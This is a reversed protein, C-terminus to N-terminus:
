LKDKLYGEVKAVTKSFDEVNVDFWTVDMQNKFWTFQRKAYRRSNRKILSIAEELGQEKRFYPFLEKYGIARMSQSNEPLGTSILAQVESLLGTAMMADVRQDIRGYLAVRDDTLGIMAVNYVLRHEQKEVLASKKEGTAEFIELARIVRKRNNHHIERASEADVEMLKQHLSENDLHGYLEEDMSKPRSEGETFEYDYLVSKIYLGTGGVIIPIKGRGKIEDIKGRVAKQFQAVSYDEDPDKEDLLHHKVGQKEEASVKATGIDMGRYVQMSDGSIVEGDLKKALEVGMRTKGVATPGVICIVDLM